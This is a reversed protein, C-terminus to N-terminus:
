STGGVTTPTTRRAALTGTMAGVVIATALTLLIQRVDRGQEFPLVLPLVLAYALVAAVAGHLAPANALRSRRAAVAFAVVADGALWAIAVPVSILTLIPALLGGIVLISFGTSAGRVANPVDIRGAAPTTRRLTHSM